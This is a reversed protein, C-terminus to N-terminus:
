DLIRSVTSRDSIDPLSDAVESQTHGNDIMTEVVEKRYSKRIDDPSPGTGEEDGYAYNAAYSDMRDAKMDTLQQYEPDDDAHDWRIRCLRKPMYEGDHDDIKTTYVVGVGRSHVVIRLDALEKLRKDLMAASPLTVLSYIERYRMTAWLHSIQVNQDSMSRRNDAAQEAEDLLLVSQSPTDDATYQDAYDNPDLTARDATWGNQDWSHALQVALTTKGTGTAADRAVIIALLTRNDRRRSEYLQQLLDLDDGPPSRVYIPRPDTDSPDSVTKPISRHKDILPCHWADGRETEVIRMGSMLMLLIHELLDDCDSDDPSPQQGYARATDRPVVIRDDFVEIGDFDKLWDNCCYDTQEDPDFVSARSPDPEIPRIRGDTGEPIQQRRYRRYEVETYWGRDTDTPPM